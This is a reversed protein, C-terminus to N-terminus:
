DNMRPRRRRRSSARSPLSTPHSTVLTRSPHTRRSRHQRLTRARWGSETAMVDSQARSSPPLLCSTEDSPTGGYQFDRQGTLYSGNGPMNYEMCSWGGVWTMNEIRLIAGEWQGRANIRRLLPALDWSHKRKARPHPSDSKAIALENGAVAELTSYVYGMFTHADEAGPRYLCWDRVRLHFSERSPVRAGPYPEPRRLGGPVNTQGDGIRIGVLGRLTAMLWFLALYGCESNGPQATCPVICFDFSGPYGAESLFHQWMDVAARARELRLEKWADFYYLQGLRKDWIIAAWHNDSYVFNAYLRKGSTHQKFIEPGPHLGAYLGKEGATRARGRTRGQPLTMYYHGIAVAHHLGRIAIRLMAHLQDEYAWSEKSSEVLFGHVLATHPGWELEDIDDFRPVGAYLRMIEDRSMDPASRMYGTQRLQPWVCRPFFWPQQENYIKDLDRDVQVREGEEFFPAGSHSGFTSAVYCTLLSRKRGNSPQFFRGIDSDGADLGANGRKQDKSM